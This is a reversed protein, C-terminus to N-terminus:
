QANPQPPAFRLAMPKVAIKFSQSVMPEGDLNMHFPAATEIVASQCQFRQVFAETPDNQNIGDLLRIAGQVSERSLIALDLLGDTVDALPAVDFGGGAYRSNGVILASIEADFAAGGDVAIRAKVPAMESLRALGALTYALGGLRRKIEVPTTATIMAGFGGSAVNVFHADNIVGVDIPEAEATAAVRISHELDVGSDGFARAFDNATGLPVLGMSLGAEPPFRLVANAVANATGDGGAGVIRTVGNKVARKMIKRFQKGNWPVWVDIDLEKQLAKLADRVDSRAASKRNLTLLTKHAMVDTM